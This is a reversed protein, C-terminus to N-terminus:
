VVSKRDPLWLRCSKLTLNEDLQNRLTAVLKTPRFSEPTNLFGISEIWAKPSDIDFPLECPSDTASKFSLTHNSETGWESTKGNFRLVRLAGAPLDFGNEWSPDRWAWANATVLESPTANDFRLPGVVQITEQSNNSIFIETRASLAQEPPRRWQMESSVQHPTVNIGSLTLGNSEPSQSLGDTNWLILCCFFSIAIRM